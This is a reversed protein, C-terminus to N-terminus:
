AHTRERITGGAESDAGLRAKRTAHEQWTMMGILFPVGLLFFLYAKWLSEKHDWVEFSIGGQPSSVERLAFDSGSVRFHFAGIALLGGIGCAILLVQISRFPDLRDRRNWMWFGIVQIAAFISLWIIGLIEFQFLLILGTPLLWASGGIQGGFWGGNWQYQGIGPRPQKVAM